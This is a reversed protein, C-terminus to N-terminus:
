GLAPPRAVQGMTAARGAPFSGPSLPMDTTVQSDWRQGEEATHGQVLNERLRLEEMELIPSLAEAM